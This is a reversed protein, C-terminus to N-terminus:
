LTKILETGQSDKLSLDLIVLRPQLATIMALAQERNEAEGCVELDSEHQVLRKVSERVLPHDDVIFIRTNKETQSQSGDKMHKRGLHDSSAAVSNGVLKWM